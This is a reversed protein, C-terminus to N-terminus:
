FIFNGNDLSGGVLTIDIAMDANDLTASGDIDIYLTNTSIDFVADGVSGTLSTLVAGYGNADGVFTGAGGLITNLDILDDAVNFDTITDVTTGQSHTVDTYVFTDVGAGGTLTDSGLGGIITDDGDGGTVVDNGAGAVLVDSGAGGSLTDDGAGTTLVDNGGGGTFVADDGTNTTVSVSNSGAVTTLGSADFSTLNAFSSNFNVGGSGTVTITSADSGELDFFVVSSSSQTVAVTEVGALVYQGNGIDGDAISVNLTDSASNALLNVTVLGDNDGFLTLKGGSAMNDITLNGGLFGDTGETNDRFDFVTDFNGALNAVSVPNINGAANTGTFTLTDTATDYDLSALEPIAAQIDLFQGVLFVGLQDVTLSPDVEIDVFGAGASGSLSIRIFGGDADTALGGGIDNILVTQEEVAFATGGTTTAAVAAAGTTDTDTFTVQDVNANAALAVADYTITIVSGVATASVNARADIASAIRAATEITTEGGVLELALNGGVDADLGITVTGNSAPATNVSLTQVENVPDTGGSTTATAGFSAGATYPGTFPVVTIDPADGSLLSFVFEIQDDNPALSQFSIIEADGVNNANYADVIQQGFNTAIFDVLDDSNTIGAPIEVVVGEITIQAGYAITESTTVFDLRQTEQVATTAALDVKLVVDDIDDINDLDVIRVEGVALAGTLELVEFGNVVADTDGNATVGDATVVDVVLTDNGDGGELADDSNLTDGLTIRDDGEGLDVTQDGAAFSVNVDDDGAGTAITNDGMLGLVGVDVKDDGAGTTIDNDGGGLEVTTDGSGGVFTVANNNNETEFVLDGTLGSAEVNTLGQLFGNDTDMVLDGAGEINLNAVASSINIEIESNTQVSLNATDVTDAVAVTFVGPTGLTRGYESVVFDLAGDTIAGADFEVNTDEDTDFAGIVADEQVNEVNVTDTSRFNWIQQVGTTNVLDLNGAALSQFNIREVGTMTPTMNSNASDIINLTDFGQGGDILDGSGLNNDAPGGSSSTGAVIIDDGSNDVTGKSGILNGPQGQLTDSGETLTFTQGAGVVPDDGDFTAGDATEIPTLDPGGQPIQASGDNVAALLDNISDGLGPIDSRVAINTLGAFAVVAFGNAGDIDLEAARAVYFDAQSLFYARGEESRFAVPVVFNYVANLKDQISAAGVLIADFAAAAAPNGQYLSNVTNIYINEENFVVGPGAGFNTSNNENILYEYGDLTPVGGLLVQYAATLGKFQYLNQASADILTKLDSLAM